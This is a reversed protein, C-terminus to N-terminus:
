GATLARQAVLRWRGPDPGPVQWLSLRDFRVTLPLTLEVRAALRVKDAVPLQSYQLSLHPEFAAPGAVGFARTAHEAIHRLVPDPVAVLYLSRHWAAECRTANFRLRVPGTGAALEGLAAVAGDLDEEIPGLVTLHASFTATAHVTALRAIEADLEAAADPDPQLWLALKQRAM